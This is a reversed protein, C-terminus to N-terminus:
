GLKGGPLGGIQTSSRVAPKAAAAAPQPADDKKVSLELKERVNSTEAFDSKLAKIEHRRAEIEEEYEKIEKELTDIRNEIKAQKIEADGIIAEVSVNASELTARVVQVVLPINDAPLNRMLEIAKQIGFDSKSMAKNATVSAATKSAAPKSTAPKSAAPKAASQSAAPKAAPRSAQQQGVIDDISPTKKDFWGMASM